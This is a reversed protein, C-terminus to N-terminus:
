ESCCRSTLENGAERSGFRELRCRRPWEGKARPHHRPLRRHRRPVWPRRGMWTWRDRPRSRIRRRSVNPPLRRRCGSMPRPSLIPPSSSASDVIGAEIRCLLNMYAMADSYDPDLQLAIQLMRFGDEIQAMHDTRVKLRLSADPIIGPDQPKMGAAARAGAYDPYTMSWDLFGATYYAFKDTADAQIAKLAWDHAEAFSSPTRDAPEVHRRHGAQQRPRAGPSRSVAGARATVLPSAADTGPIYQQLLTNALLLRAKLNDPELQVASAFQKAAEQYDGRNYAAEGLKMLGAGGQARATLALSSAIVACIALASLGSVLLLRARKLNAAPREM